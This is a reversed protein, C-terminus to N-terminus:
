FATFDCHCIKAVKFKSVDSSLKRKNHTRDETSTSAAELIPKLASFKSKQM